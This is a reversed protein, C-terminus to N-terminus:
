PAMHVEFPNTDQPTPQGPPPQVYWNTASEIQSIRQHLEAQQQQIQSIQQSLQGLRQLIELNSPGTNYAPDPLYTTPLQIMRSSPYQSYTPTSPYQYAPYQPRTPLPTTPTRPITVGYDQAFAGHSILCCSLLFAVRSLNIMFCRKLILGREFSWKSALIARKPLKTSLNKSLITYMYARLIQRYIQEFIMLKKLCLLNQFLDIELDKKGRLEKQSFIFSLFDFLSIKLWL